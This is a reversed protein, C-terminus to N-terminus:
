WWAGRFDVELKSGGFSQGAPVFTFPRTEGPGVPAWEAVTLNTTVDVGDLVARGGAYPSLVLTSGAPVSAEYRLEDGQSLISFGDEILGTVKYVPWSDATGRNTLYFGGGGFGAGSDFTGFDLFGASFMPFQLGDLSDPNAELVLPDTPAYKRGDPAYFVIQFEVWQADLERVKVRNGPAVWVRCSKPGSSDSVTFTLDTRKALQAAWTEVDAQAAMQSAASHRATLAIERGSLLQEVPAFGGDQGPIDESNGRVSPSDRWGDLGDEVVYWDGIGGQFERGGVTVVTDILFGM